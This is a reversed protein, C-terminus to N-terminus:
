ELDYTFEVYRDGDRRAGTTRWLECAAVNTISSGVWISQVGRQKCITLLERVLRKAVGKRRVAPKVEIDYLYALQAGDLSAFCHAVLYGIPENGSRAALVISRGDGLLELLGAASVESAGSLEIALQRAVEFDDVTLRHVSATHM